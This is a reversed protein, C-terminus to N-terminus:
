ADAVKMRVVHVFRRPENTQHPNRRRHDAAQYKQSFRGGCHAGVKKMTSAENNNKEGCKGTNEYISPAFFAAKVVLPCPGSQTFLPWKALTQKASKLLVSLIAALKRHPLRHAYKRRQAL